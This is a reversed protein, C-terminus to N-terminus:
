DIVGAQHLIAKAQIRELPSMGSKALAANLEVSDVKGTNPDIKIGARRAVGQAQMMVIPEVNRASAASIAGPEHHVLGAETLALVARDVLEPYIGSKRLAERVSVSSLKTESKGARIRDFFKRQDDVPLRNITELLDDAIEPITPM